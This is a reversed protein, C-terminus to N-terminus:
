PSLVEFNLYCLSSLFRIEMQSHAILTQIHYILLILNRPSWILLRTSSASLEVSIQNILVLTILQSCCWAFLLLPVALTTTGEKDILVSQCLFELGFSRCRHKSGKVHYFTANVARALDLVEEVGDSM